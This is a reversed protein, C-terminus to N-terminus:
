LANHLDAHKRDGAVSLHSSDPVYWDLCGGTFAHKGRAKPDAPAGWTVFNVESLLRRSLAARAPSEKKTTWTSVHTDLLPNNTKWEPQQDKTSPDGIFGQVDMTSPVDVMSQVGATDQASATAVVDEMVVVSEMDSVDEMVLVDLMDQDNGTAEADELTNKTYTTRGGM